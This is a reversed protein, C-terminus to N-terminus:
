PATAVVTVTVGYQNSSTTEVPMTLRFYVNRTAGTAVNSALLYPTGATEFITWASTDPSYEWVVQDLGNTTGLAWTNGNDAFVASKVELNAPGTDVILTQVDGGTDATAGLALIEFEVAGDTTLSRSRHFSVPFLSILM